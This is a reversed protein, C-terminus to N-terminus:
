KYRNMEEHFVREMEDRIKDYAEYNAESFWPRASMDSRGYNLTFGVQANKVNDKKDEGSNCHPQEGQPLVDISMRIDKSKVKSKAISNELTGTSRKGKVYKRIAKKHAAVMIDAGANLAARLARESGSVRKQIELELAVFSGEIMKAM